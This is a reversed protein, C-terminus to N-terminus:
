VDCVAAGVSNMPVPNTTISRKHVSTSPLMTIVLIYPGTHLMPM